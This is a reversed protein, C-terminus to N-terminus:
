GFISYAKMWRWVKQMIQQELDQYEEETIEFLRITEGAPPEIAEQLPMLVAEGTLKYTGFRDVSVTLKHLDATVSTDNEDYLLEARLQMEIKDETGDKSGFVTLLWEDLGLVTLPVESEMSVVIDDISRDEGLFCIDGSVELEIEREKEGIAAAIPEELSIRVIRDNKEEVAITVIIDRTIAGTIEAEKEKGPDATIGNEEAEAGAATGAKEEAAAQEEAATRIEAIRGNVWDKSITLRYQSCRYKRNEREPVNIDILEELKEMSIGEQWNELYQMWSLFGQAPFLDISIAHGELAGFKEAFLSANYQVDIQETDFVLNQEFLDPLGVCLTRDEGYLNLEVLKNNMVSFETDAKMRRADADRLLTTDVGLTFPLEEGSLNCVTTLRIQDLSDAAGNGSAEEWLAQREQIEESLNRFAKLLAREETFYLRIFVIAAALIVVICGALIGAAMKWKRNWHKKEEIEPIKIEGLQEMSDIMGKRFGQRGM